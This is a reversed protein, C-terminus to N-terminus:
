AVQEKRQARRFEARLHFEKEFLESKRELGALDLRTGEAARIVFIARGGAIQVDVGAIRQAHESELKEAIRLLSTLMRAQRRRPGELSAYSAHELQPESKCNHYRVLAAVMDRRWGRLGPIEGNRILYEGHRHHAKRNVFHGVDHLLAAMELALRQEAGMEHLPRLQDFLSLALRVVQEAHQGDYSLRRAFWRVGALLEAARGRDEETAMGASYQQGVLDLLIGERVGVGPVLLSRLGLWKALTTIIIAAIGMVEARDERVRFARMRGAVDLGLLRWMQDHLLRVNMTPIRGMLPGAAMRVLAEANGGCAVATARGLKPPAPMASRLLLMVHHRLRGATDEGIAGQIKYTEMVRITGLPLAVRRELVGRNFFNVELSGGGLDFIVRPRIREGLTWQVASCVLRAEEESSIVELEIGTKRQIREMLSRYNRAERAASTAVARYAGVHHRDMRERFDRFARVARDITDNDLMRRTFANHGLRVAARENDLIQIHQPSTARAIVLRIANSGADIAALQVPAAM